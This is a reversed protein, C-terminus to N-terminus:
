AYCREVPLRVSSLSLASHSSCRGNRQPAGRTTPGLARQADSRTPSEQVHLPRSFVLPRCGSAGAATDTTASSAATRNIGARLLLDDYPRSQSIFVNRARLDVVAQRWGLGGIGRRVGRVCERM